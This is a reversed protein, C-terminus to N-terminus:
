ERSACGFPESAAGAIKEAVQAIASSATPSAIRWNAGVVSYWGAERRNGSRITCLDLTIEGHNLAQDRDAAREYAILYLDHGDM